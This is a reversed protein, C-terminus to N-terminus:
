PSPEATKKMLAEYIRELVSESEKFIQENWFRIVRFGQSRVYVTRRRDYQAQTEDAHQGRDIEIILRAKLCCFDAFYKGIPHNRRFKAGAFRRIHFLKWMKREADTQEQRLARARALTVAPLM